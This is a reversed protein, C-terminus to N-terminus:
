NKTTFIYGCRTAFDRDSLGRFRHNVRERPLGRGKVPLTQRLRHGYQEALELYRSYPTRNFYYPRNGRVIRWFLDSYGWHENWYRGTGPFSFDIQHSMVGGPKLWKTMVSYAHDLDEIDQLAGQSLIVDVSAAQALREDYWPCVYRIMGDPSVNRSNEISTRIRAIRDPALASAIQERSLYRSPFSYDPLLPYLNPFEDEGPIPERREFFQVLDDVVALNTQIDAHEIVDLALYRRGGSLLGAIGVGISDGPGLEVITDMPGTYGANRSLVLHRMWVSYCYRSSNTGGTGRYTSLFPVYGKLGGAALKLKFM